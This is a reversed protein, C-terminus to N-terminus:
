EENDEEEVDEFNLNQYIDEIALQINLSPLEVTEDPGYHRYLWVHPNEPREM